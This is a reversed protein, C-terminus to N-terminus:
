ELFSVIREILDPREMWPWHGADPVAVLEAAPLRDALRRGFDPDIYPDREGWVVLAPCSIRDLGAGAAALATEPASRYLSRAARTMGPDRHRWVMDVFERPMPGRDARSQRLALAATPKITIADMLEGLGRRRWVQAAWHWRYGPLLPVVNSAVLRRVREPASQATILALGGWDHVVLEYEGIELAELFRGVLRAQGHMSYDFQRPEPRASRGFGPLDLAVAPGRIRRLFPLWDESHTPNGHVFLAPAGEGPVRRYFVEVGDVAVTREEISANAAGPEAVGPLM